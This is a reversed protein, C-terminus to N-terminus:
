PLGKSSPWRGALELYREHLQGVSMGDLGALQEEIGIRKGNEIHPSTM